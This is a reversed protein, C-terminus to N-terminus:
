EEVDNSSRRPLMKVRGTISIGEPIVIDFGEGKEQEFAKGVRHWQTKVEGTAKDDYEEPILLNYVDM